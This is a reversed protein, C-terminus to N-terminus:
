FSRQSVNFVRILYSWRRSIEKRYQKAAIRNSLLSLLRRVTLVSLM